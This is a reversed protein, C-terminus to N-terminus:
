GALMESAPLVVSYGAAVCSTTLPLVVTAPPRVEHTPVEGALHFTARFDEANRVELSVTM